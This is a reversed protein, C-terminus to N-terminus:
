MSCALTVISPILNTMSEPNTLILVYLGDVANDDSAVTGVETAEAVCRAPRAPRVEEPM